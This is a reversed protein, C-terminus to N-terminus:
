VEYLHYSVDFTQITRYHWEDTGDIPRDSIVQHGDNQTISSISCGSYLGPLFGQMLRQNVLAWLSWSDEYKNSVCEVRLAATELSVGGRLHDHPVSYPVYMMVAPTTVDEDFNGPMIRTGVIDTIASSQLLYGRIAPIIGSM